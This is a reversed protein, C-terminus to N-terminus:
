ASPLTFNFTSGQREGASEAWIRGGHVEVLARAITLGIGSGGGSQRSRSKDVRYFRDFIHALHEPPIGIGTDHITIQVENNIKKGSIIVRGGESTYQIANGTLNTLVQVVRDEDALIHPLDPALELDLSIRKSEAHPALRKIVTKMLSSIDVPRIDLQFSRAEVRSHQTVEAGFASRAHGLHQRGGTREDSLAQALRHAQDGVASRFLM